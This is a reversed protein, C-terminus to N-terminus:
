NVSYSITKTMLPDEKKSNLYKAPFNEMHKDVLFSFGFSRIKPNKSHYKVMDTLQAILTSIVLVYKSNNWGNDLVTPVFILSESWYFIM